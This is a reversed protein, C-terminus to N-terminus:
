NGGRRVSRSYRVQLGAAVIFLVIGIGLVFVEPWIPTNGAAYMTQPPNGYVRVISRGLVMDPADKANERIKEVRGYLRVPEAPQYYSAISISDGMGSLYEQLAQPQSSSDVFLYINEEDSTTCYFFYGDRGSRLGGGTSTVRAVPLFYTIDTYVYDDVASDATYKEYEIPVKQLSRVGMCGAVICCTIGLMICLSQFQGLVMHKETYRPNPIQASVGPMQPSNRDGSISRSEEREGSLGAKRRVRDYLTKEREERYKEFQEYNDKVVMVPFNEGALGNVERVLKRRAATDRYLWLVSLVMLLAGLVKWVPSGAFLLLAAGVGMLIGFTVTLVQRGPRSAVSWPQERGCKECTCHLTLGEFNHYENIQKLYYQQKQVLEPVRKSEGFMMEVYKNRKKGPRNSKQDSIASSFPFEKETMNITGCYPCEYYIYYKRSRTADIGAM